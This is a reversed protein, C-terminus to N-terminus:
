DSCTPESSLAKLESRRKIRGVREEFSTGVSIKRDKLPTYKSRSSALDPNVDGSLTSIPFKTVPDLTFNFHKIEEESIIGPDISEIIGRLMCEEVAKKAWLSQLRMIVRSTSLSTDVWKIDEFGSDYLILGEATAPSYNPKAKCSEVDLLYDIVDPSERGQGVLTLAGMMYRVQHWLFSKATISLECLKFADPSESDLSRIRIKHIHRNFDRLSANDLKCFNRFDHEGELKLAAERMKEINLSGKPFYYKYSRYLCSFRASFDLPVPAWSIVRIEEPLKAQLMRVYPLEEDGENTSGARPVVGIGESLNSRVYLAIVQGVASVGKDTRGCRSYNCSTRDSILKCEMFAKFLEEEITNKIHPQIAFGSYKQGLYAVKFAVHRINFNSFEFNKKTKKSKPEDATSLKRKMNLYTVTKCFRERVLRTVSFM